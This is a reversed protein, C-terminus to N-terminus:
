EAGTAGGRLGEVLKSYMPAESAIFSLPVFGYAARRRRSTACCGIRAAKHRSTEVHGYM